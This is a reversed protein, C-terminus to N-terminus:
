EDILEKCLQTVSIFQLTCVCIAFVCYFVIQVEYNKSINFNIVTTDYTLNAAIDINCEPNTIKVTINAHNQTLPNRYQDTPFTVKVLYDM